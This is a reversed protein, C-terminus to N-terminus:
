PQGGFFARVEAITEWFHAGPGDCEVSQPSAGGAASQQEGVWSSTPEPGFEEEIEGAPCTPSNVVLAVFCDIDFNNFVGDHNCDGVGVLNILRQSGYEQEWEVPDVLSDLFADVDFSNRCGDGNFDGLLPGLALVYGENVCILTGNSDLSPQTEFPRALDVAGHEVAPPRYFVAAFPPLPSRWHPSFRLIEDLEKRRAHVRATPHDSNMFFTGGAALCPAGGINNPPGGVGEVSIGASGSQPDSVRKLTGSGEIWVVGTRDSFLGLTASFPGDQEETRPWREDLVGPVTTGRRNDFAYVRWDDCPLVLDGNDHLVPSAWNTGMTGIWQDVGSSWRQPALAVLNIAAPPEGAEARGGFMTVYTFTAGPNDEPNDDIPGVAPTSTLSPGNWAVIASRWEQSGGPQPAVHLWVVKVHYPAETMPRGVVVVTPPAGVFAQCFAPGAGDSRFPPPPPIPPNQLVPNPPYQWEPDPPAIPGSCMVQDTLFSLDFCLVRHTTQVIVRDNALVLPTSMVREQPAQGLPISIAPQAPGLEPNHASSCPRWRFVFLTAPVVQSLDNGPVIIM